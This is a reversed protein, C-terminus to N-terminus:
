EHEVPEAPLNLRPGAHGETETGAEDGLGGQKTTSRLFLVVRSSVTAARERLRRWACMAAVVLLVVLEIQMLLTAPYMYRYWHGAVALLHSAYYVAPILLVLFGARRRGRGRRALFAAVSTALLCLVVWPLHCAFIFRLTPSRGIADDVQKLVNQIGAVAAPKRGYHEPLTGTPHWHMVQDNKLYTWFATWKVQALTLPLQRVAARYDAALESHRTGYRQEKGEMAGVYDLRTPRFEAPSYWYYVNVFGPIYLRRFRDEFLHRDTYPLHQRADDREACVGVLDLALIQDEPHVHEVRYREGIWRSAALPLVVILVAIAARAVRQGGRSAHVALLVFVPLLVIANYRMLIMWASGLVAAAWWACRIVRSEGPRGPSPRTL